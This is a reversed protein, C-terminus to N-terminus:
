RIDCRDSYYPCSLVNQPYQVWQPDVHSKGTVITGNYTCFNDGMYNFCTVDGFHEVNSISKYEKQILKNTSEQVMAVYTNRSEIGALTVWRSARNFFPLTEGRFPQDKSCGILLLPLLLLASIKKM